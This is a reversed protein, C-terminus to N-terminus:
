QLTQQRETEQKRSVDVKEAESIRDSQGKITLNVPWSEKGADNIIQCTYEGAQSRDVNFLELTAQNTSTLSFSCAQSPEMEKAGRFWKLKLPASGKVMASFTVNSGPLAELSQPPVVFSPPEAYRCCSIRTLEFIHAASKAAGTLKFGERQKLLIYLIFM